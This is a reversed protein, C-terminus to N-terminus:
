RVDDNTNDTPRIGMFQLVMQVVNNDGGPVEIEDTDAFCDFSVIMSVNVREILEFEDAGSEIMIKLEDLYYFARKMCCFVDLDRITEVENESSRVFSVDGYQPKVYRIGLNRKLEIPTATLTAYKRGTYSTETEGVM